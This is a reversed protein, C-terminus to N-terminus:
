LIRQRMRPFRDLIGGVVRSDWLEPYSVTKRGQVRYRIYRCIGENGYWVREGWDPDLPCIPANCQEFKVCDTVQSRKRTAMPMHRKPRNRHAKRPPTPKERLVGSTDAKQKRLQCKNGQTNLHDNLRDTTLPSFTDRLIASKHREQTSKLFIRLSLPHKYQEVVLGGTARRRARNIVSSFFAMRTPSPSRQPSLSVEASRCDALPGIPHPNGARSPTWHADIGEGARDPPRKQPEEPSDGRIGARRQGCNKASGSGCRAVYFTDVCGARLRTAGTATYHRKGRRGRGRGRDM